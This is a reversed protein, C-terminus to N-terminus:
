FIDFLWYAVDAYKKKDTESVFKTIFTCIIGLLVLPGRRNFRNALSKNIVSYYNVLRCLNSGCYFRERGHQKTKM